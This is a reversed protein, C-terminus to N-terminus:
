ARLAAEASPDAVLRLPDPRHMDERKREEGGGRDSAHRTSADASPRVDGSAKSRYKFWWRVVLFGSAAVFAIEDAFELPIGYKRVLGQGCRAWLRLAKADIPHLQGVLDTASHEITAAFERPPTELLWEAVASVLPDMDQTAAAAPEAWEAPALDAPQDLAPPESFHGPVDVVWADVLEPGVPAGEPPGPPGGPPGATSTTGDGQLPPGQQGGPPGDPGALAQAESLQLQLADVQAQLERRKRLKSAGSPAKPM